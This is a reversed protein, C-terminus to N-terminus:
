YHWTFIPNIIYYWPSDVPKYTTQAPIQITWWNWEGLYLLQIDYQRVIAAMAAMVAM